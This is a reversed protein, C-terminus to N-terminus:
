GEKGARRHFGDLYSDGVLTTAYVVNTGMRERVVLGLDTMRSIAGSRQSALFSDTVQRGEHETGHKRLEVDIENPTNSGGHIAELVAFFAFDEVSVCRAIHDLLFAVEEESFKRVADGTAEDLVPSRLLAFQWGSETLQLREKSDSSWNILKLDYLLGALQGSRVRAVFQNAFRAQSKVVKGGSIPFATVLRQDRTYGFEKDLSILYDGLDTAEM